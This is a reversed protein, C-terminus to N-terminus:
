RLRRYVKHMDVFDIYSLAGYHLDSFGLGAGFRHRWRYYACCAKKSAASVKLPRDTCSANPPPRKILADVLTPSTRFARRLTEKTWRARTTTFVLATNKAKAQPHGRPKEAIQLFAAATTTQHANPRERLCPRKAANFTAEDHVALM